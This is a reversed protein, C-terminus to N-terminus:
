GHLIACLRGVLLVYRVSHDQEVCTCCCYGFKDVTINRVLQFENRRSFAQQIGSDEWLARLPEVYQVFDQPDLINSKYNNLIDCFEENSDHQMPINLNRVAKALTKAGKMVNHYVTPRFEIRANDDFDEGHIIRMQKLFTSKGSEGAGLLLIKIESRYQKKEAQLNRDIERSRRVAARDEESLCCTAMKTLQKKM